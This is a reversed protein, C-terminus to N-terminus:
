SAAEALRFSINGEIPLLSDYARQLESLGPNMASDYTRRCGPCEGSLILGYKKAHDSKDQLDLVVRTTCNGCAVSVYRIESLSVVVEKTMSPM